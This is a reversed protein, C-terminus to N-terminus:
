AGARMPKLAQAWRALEDLMTRASKEHIETATFRKEADLHQSVSPITVAELIPMMKLGAVLPKAAQVARLGGSVGGYSVFAAPKYSWEAYVFDLANVFSPAPSHNYEPTVFVFADAADV